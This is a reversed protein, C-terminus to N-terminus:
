IKNYIPFSQILYQSYNVDNHWLDSYSQYQTTLADEYCLSTFHLTLSESPNDLQYFNYKNPDYVVDKGYISLCLLEDIATTLFSEIPYNELLHSCFDRKIIYSQTHSVSLTRYTKGKYPLPWIRNRCGLWFIDWEVSYIDNLVEDVNETLSPLFLCDDELVLLTEYDTKLFKEYIEFHSKKCNLPGSGYSSVASFRDVGKIDHNLFQEEMKEKRDIRNDLNIYESYDAIKKDKITVM